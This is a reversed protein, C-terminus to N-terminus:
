ENLLRMVAEDSLSQIDFGQPATQPATQPVAQQQVRGEARSLGRQLIAKLRGLAQRAQEPSQARDLQAIAAQAAQGM